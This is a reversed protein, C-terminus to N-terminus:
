LFNYGFAYKLSRSAVLQQVRPAKVNRNDKPLNYIFNNTWTEVVCVGLQFKFRQGKKHLMLRDEPSFLVVLIKWPRCIVLDKYRRVCKCTNVASRYQSTDVPMVVVSVSTQRMDRSTIPLPPEHCGSIDSHIGTNQSRLSWAYVTRLYLRNNRIPTFSPRVKFSSFLSLTSLFTDPDLRCSPVPYHLFSCLASSRTRPGEGLTIQTILDLLILCAPCTPSFLSASQSETPFGSPFLCSPLGVSLLSSSIVISRVLCPIFPTSHIPRAWPLSLHCATTLVTIFM